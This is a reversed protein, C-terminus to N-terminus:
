LYNISKKVSVQSPTSSIEPLIFKPSKSRNSGAESNKREGRTPTASPSITVASSGSASSTPSAKIGDVDGNSILNVYQQIDNASVIKMNACDEILKELEDDKNNGNPTSANVSSNLGFFSSKAESMVPRHISQTDGDSQDMNVQRQDNERKNRMQVTDIVNEYKPITSPINNNNSNQPSSSMNPAIDDFRFKIDALQSQLTSISLNDYESLPREVEPSSPNQNSRSSTSPFHNVDAQRRLYNKVSSM